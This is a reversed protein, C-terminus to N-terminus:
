FKTWLQLMRVGNRSMNSQHRRYHAVVGHHRFGPFSRAVRLLMEYDESSPLSTKFEGVSELVSRRLMVAITNAVHSARLLQEYQGAESAAWRPSRLYSGDASMLDIDGVVFGAEPHAAFCELHSEAANPTLHDDADLFMLYDGRSARIGGNRAGSLGQNQQRVCNVGYRKAVESTNDTSGDDVVIVEVHPHTQALASGISGPLFHAQNYCPIIVSVIPGSRKKPPTDM